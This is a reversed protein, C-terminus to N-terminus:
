FLQRKKIIFLFQHSSRLNAYKVLYSAGFHSVIVLILYQYYRQQAGVVALVMWCCHLLSFLM